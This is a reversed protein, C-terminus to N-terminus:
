LDERAPAEGALLLEVQYDELGADVLFSQAFKLLGTRSQELRQHARAEEEQSLATRLREELFRLALEQETPTLGPLSTIEIGSSSFDFSSFEPLPAHLVAARRIPDLQLDWDGQPDFVYTAQYTVRLGKIRDADPFEELWETLGPGAPITKTEQFSLKLLGRLRENHLARNLILGSDQPQESFFVRQVLFGAGFTIGLTFVFFALIWRGKGSPILSRKEQKQDTSFSM